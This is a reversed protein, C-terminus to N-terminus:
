HKRNSTVAREQSVSHLVKLTASFIANAEALGMRGGIGGAVGALTGMVFQVCQRGDMRAVCADMLKLINDAAQNATADVDNLNVEIKLIKM